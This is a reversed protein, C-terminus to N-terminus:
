PIRSTPEDLVTDNRLESITSSQVNATSEARCAGDFAICTVLHQKYGYHDKIEFVLDDVVTDQTM